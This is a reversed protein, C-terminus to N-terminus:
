AALKTIGVAPFKDVEANWANKIATRPAQFHGRHIAIKGRYPNPPLQAIKADMEKVSEVTVPVAPQGAAPSSGINAILIDIATVAIEVFPVLASTQPILAMTAEVASMADNFVATSSGTTWTSTVTVIAAADTKLQAAITPETAALATAINDIAQGVVAGDKQIESATNTCM